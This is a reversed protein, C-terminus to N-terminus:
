LIAHLYFGPILPLVDDASGNWLARTRREELGESLSGVAAGQTRM